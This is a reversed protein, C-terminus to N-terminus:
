YDRVSKDSIKDLGYRKLAEERAEKHPVIPEPRFFFKEEGLWKKQYINEKDYNEAQLYPNFIRIPKPDAGVSAGWQWGGNNSAEDLDILMARFYEQGWRWDVGLNKTLVSAVIMRSRNHMWGTKALQMMAADVVKYGTEGKIWAEFRKIAQGNEVWEIKNRFKEQYETNMLEPNRYFLYKYFERWILESLYSIIGVRNSDMDKDFWNIQLFDDDFNNQIEQRVQRASLLGWTLALSLKSTKGSFLSKGNADQELSDRNEKYDSILEKVFKKMHVHAEHESIYWESLDPKFDLLKDIDIEIKSKEKYDVINIKRNKSFLEFINETNIAVQHQINQLKSKSLYNLDLLKGQSIKPLVEATMFEKWVAKKFPTFISYYNGTGSITEKNITLQDNHVIVKINNERLKKVQKNFDVYVDENIHVEVNLELHKQLNIITQAGKGKVLLFEKFNEIFKPIAHSLFYRSPYGFQFDPKAELMYDELIFIPLFHNEPNAIVKKVAETLAPNDSIRFDRRSWYIILNGNQM